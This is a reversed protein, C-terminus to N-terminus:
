GHAAERAVIDAMDEGLNDPVVRRVHVGAGTWRASCERAATQGPTKGTLPDVVDHDVIITLTEIGPLVPFHTTAGASGTAWMPAFGLMMAAIATEIGEAIHLGLTVDDDPSLKCACGAWPGLAKRDIKEGDATLATRSIARPENSRIDRYLALIAPHTIGKGFPCHRHLRLVPGDLGEPIILKRREFYNQAIPNDISSGVDFLKLAYRAREDDDDPEPKASPKSPAPAVSRTNIRMGCFDGAFKIADVFDGGRERMILDFLDGGVDAEHDTWLGAKDGKVALAFSGKRGWRLERPSKLKPNPQGIFHIVLDAARQILAARLDNLDITERGAEHYISM